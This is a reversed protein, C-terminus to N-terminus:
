VNIEAPEISIARWSRGERSPHKGYVAMAEVFQVEEDLDNLLYPAIFTDDVFGFGKPNRRLQGRLTKVGAKPLQAREIRFVSFRNNKPNQAIGCRVGDGVVFNESLHSEVIVDDGTEEVFVKMPRDNEAASAVVGTHTVLCDWPDGEERLSIHVIAERSDGEERGLVLNLPSGPELSGISKRPSVLTYAGGDSGKVVFKALPKPRGGTRANKPQHPTLLGVFNASKTGIVDFCLDLADTSHLAYFDKPELAGDASPDYWSTSVLEEIKRGTPWGEAQRIGIAIAIEQSAQAYNEQESLLQALEIHARVLFKPETPCEMARCFCALALEPQDKQYLRGAEAWVWFENKKAKIVSALMRAAQDFEGLQRLLIATDWALWLTDEEASSEGVKEAWALAMKMHDANADPRMAVWKCLERAVKMALSPYTKGQYQNPQWDELRLGEQGIWGIIEPFSPVHRGVKVLQGVINSCAMEPMRPKLSHYTRLRGMLEELDEPNVPRNADLTTLIKAVADKTQDFIVWEYQSRSKFDNADSALVRRALSEADALQGSKRLRQISQWSM